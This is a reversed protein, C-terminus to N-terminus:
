KLDTPEPVLAIKERGRRMVGRMKEGRHLYVYFLLAM